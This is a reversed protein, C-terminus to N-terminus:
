KKCPRDNRRFVAQTVFIGAAELLEDPLTGQPSTYGIAEDTMYSQKAASCAVLDFYDKAPEIRMEASQQAFDEMSGGPLLIGFAREGSFFIGGPSLQQAAFQLTRAHLRDLYPRSRGAMAEDYAKSESGMLIARLRMTEAMLDLDTAISPTRGVGSFTRSMSTIHQGNLLPGLIVPNTIDDLVLSIKGAQVPTTDLPKNVGYTHTIREVAGSPQPNVYRNFSTRRSGIVDVNEDGISERCRTGAETLLPPNNDVGVLATHALRRHLETLLIGLGSGIDLHIDGERDSLHPKLTDAFQTYAERKAWAESENRWGDRYSEDLAKLLGIKLDADGM